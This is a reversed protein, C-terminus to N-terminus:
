RKGSELAIISFQANKGSLLMTKANQTEQPHLIEPCALHGSAMIPVICSGTTVATYIVLQHWRPIMPASRATNSFYLAM